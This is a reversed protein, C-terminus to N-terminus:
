KLHTQALDESQGTSIGHPFFPLRGLSGTTETDTSCGDCPPAAHGVFGRSDSGNSTWTQDWHSHWTSTRIWPSDATSDWASDADVLMSVPHKQINADFGQLFAWSTTAPPQQISGQPDAHQWAHGEMTEKFQVAIEHSVLNVFAYGRNLGGKKDEPLNLYDITAPFKLM